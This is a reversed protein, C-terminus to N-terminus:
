IRDVIKCTNTPFRDHASYKELFRYFVSHCAWTVTGTSVPKWLSPPVATSHALKHALHCSSSLCVRCFSPQPHWPSPARGGFLFIFSVHLNPSAEAMSPRGPQCADTNPIASSSISQTLAAAEAAEARMGCGESGKPSSESNRRDQGLPKLGGMTSTPAVLCTRDRAPCERCEPHQRIM